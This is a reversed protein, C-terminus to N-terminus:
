RDSKGPMLLLLGSVILAGAYVVLGPAYSEYHARSLPLLTAGLAAGFQFVAFITGYVRGFATLGFSRKIIYSLVDFEAGYVMGILIACLYVLAGAPGLAYLLCAAAGGICVASMLRKASVYDLLVGTLFRGVLVALGFVAQVFAAQQPTAGGDILLSIQNTVLGTNVFGLLFFAVTLTVFSQTRILSKFEENKQRAFAAGARTPRVDPSEFLFLANIPLVILLVIIGLSVYAWQVSGNLIIYTLIPPLMAAGLGIGGNAVGIALGLRREFWTSVVRLYSVPWLGIALLPLLGYMIYFSSINSSLFYMGGLGLAFALCSSLVIPRAGFRDILYGQIPSVVMIMLSVITAAFLISPKSWGFTKSLPEVFVGFVFLLFTSPGFVLGVTAAFTAGIAPRNSANLMTSPRQDAAAAVANDTM